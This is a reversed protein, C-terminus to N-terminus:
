FNPEKKVCDLCYLTKAKINLVANNSVEKTLDVGCTHCQLTVKIVKIM